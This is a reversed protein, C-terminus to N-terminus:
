PPWLVSSSFTIVLLTQVAILELACVQHGEESGAALSYRKGQAMYELLSMMNQTELCQGKMLVSGKYNVVRFIADYVCMSTHNMLM